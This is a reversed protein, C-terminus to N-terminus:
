LLSASGGIQQGVGGGVGHVARNHNMRLIGFPSWSTVAGHSHNHNILTDRLDTDQVQTETRHLVFCSHESSMCKVLVCAHLMVNLALPRHGM